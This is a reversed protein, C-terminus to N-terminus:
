IEVPRRLLDAALALNQKAYDVLQADTMLTGTPFALSLHYALRSQALPEGNRDTILGRPAPIEFYYTRYDTRTEWTPTITEPVTSNTGPAFIQPTTPPPNAVRPAAAAPPQAAPAAATRPTAAAPAPTAAPNAVRQTPAVPQQASLALPFLFLAPVIVSSV